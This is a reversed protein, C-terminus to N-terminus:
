RTEQPNITLRFTPKGTRVTRAPAFSERIAPPWAAYRREPVRIALEVYDAPDEGSARIREVLESLRAQDWDVKKPLDATVTVGGDTLRVAGTDKGQARREAAAREGYRLAIAGDLWEKLRKAADLRAVAEDQLLALQEPPLGAIEGVPMGALDDLRTRNSQPASM